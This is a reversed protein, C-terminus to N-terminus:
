LLFKLFKLFRLRFDGNNFKSRLNHSFNHNEQIQFKGGSFIVRFNLFPQAIPNHLVTELFSVASKEHNCDLLPKYM